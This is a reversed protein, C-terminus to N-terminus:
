QQSRKFAKNYEANIAAKDKPNLGATKLLDHLQNAAIAPDDQTASQSFRVFLSKPALSAAKNFNDSSQGQQSAIWGKAVLILAQDASTATAMSSDTNKVESLAKELDPPNLRAYAIARIAHAYTTDLGNVAAIANTYDDRLLYDEATLTSVPLQHYPNPLNHTHFPPQGIKKAVKPPNASAGPKKTGGDPKKTVKVPPTPPPKAITVSGAEIVQSSGVPQLKLKFVSGPSGPPVRVTVYDPKWYIFPKAVDDILLTGPADFGKIGINVTEGAKYDGDALKTVQPPPPPPPQSGIDIDMKDSLLSSLFPLFSVRQVALIVRRHDLKVPIAIIGKNPDPRLPNSKDLKIEGEDLVDGTTHDSLTYHSGVILKGSIYLPKGGSALNRTDFTYAKNLHPKFLTAQIAVYALSVMIILALLPAIWARFSGAGRSFFDLLKAPVPPAYVLARDPPAPQVETTRNAVVSGLSLFGDEPPLPLSPADVRVASVSLPQPTLEGRFTKLRTTALLPVVRQRGPRGEEMGVAPLLEGPEPPPVALRMTPCDLLLGAPQPLQLDCYLWDNGENTVIVEFEGTRRRRTVRRQDPTLDLSWAYYPLINAVAPLTTLRDKRRAAGDQALTVQTEVEITYDYRGARSEPRKPINFRILIERTGGRPVFVKVSRDGHGRVDPKGSPPANQAGPAAPLSQVTYWGEQWFPHDCRLRITYANEQPTDNTLRVIASGDLKTRENYPASTPRTGARGPTIEVEPHVLNM